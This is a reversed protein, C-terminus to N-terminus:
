SYRQKASTCISADGIAKSRGRFSLKALRRDSRNSATSARNRNNTKGKGGSGGDTHTATYRATAAATGTAATSTAVRSRARRQTRKHHLRDNASDKVAQQPAVAANSGVLEAKASTKVSTVVPGDKSAPLQTASSNSVAKDLHAHACPAPPAPPALVSQVSGASGREVNDGVRHRWREAGSAQDETDM